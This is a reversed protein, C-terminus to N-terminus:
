KDGLFIERVGSAELYEDKTSEMLQSDELIGTLPHFAHRGMAEEKKKVGTQIRYYNIRDNEDYHGKIYHVMQYFLTIPIQIQKSM